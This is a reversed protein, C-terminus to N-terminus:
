VHMIPGPTDTVGHPLAVATARQTGREGKCRWSSGTLVIGLERSAVGDRRIGSSGSGNGRQGAVLGRSDTPGSYKPLSRYWASMRASRTRSMASTSNM